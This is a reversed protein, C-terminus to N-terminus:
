ETPQLNSDQQSRWFNPAGRVVKQRRRKTRATLIIRCSQTPTEPTLARGKMHNLLEPQFGVYARGGATLLENVMWM